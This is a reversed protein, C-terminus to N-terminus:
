QRHEIELEKLCTSAPAVGNSIFGIWEFSSVSGHAAPLAKWLKTNGGDVQVELMWEMPQRLETTISVNIPHHTQLSALRKGNVFLGRSSLSINPGVRYPTSDDRWEHIFETENDLIVSFGVRVKGSKMSVPLYMHPDFRNSVGAVGDHFFLCRGAITSKEILLAKGNNPPFRRFAHPENRTKADAFDWRRVDLARFVQQAPETQQQLKAGEIAKERDRILDQWASALGIPAGNAKLLSGSVSSASATTYASGDARWENLVTLGPQNAERHLAKRPVGIWGNGQMRINDSRRRDSWRFDNEKHFAFLNDEIVLNRGYHLHYGGSPSDVVVNSRIHMDSSGEDSYIGWAGPGYGEYGTVRRILNGSIISGASKGLTYIGGMDSLTGQGIDTLANNIIQNGHAPSDGYGWLWGVSIGSYTTYAIVNNEIRNNAAHGVWIGVSGPFVYGTNSIINGDLTNRQTLPDYLPLSSAGVKIGGAGMDDLRCGSVKSHQVDHRFWVGYGATHRINCDQLTVHRARDVEIAAGISVAAQTDIFGSSTNTIGTYEFTLGKIAVHSVSKFSRGEIKILTPLRPWFGYVAGSKSKAIDSKTPIYRIAPGDTIWEGPADLAARVNDIWYRQSRGFLLFPWKSAPELRIVDNPSLKALRHSSATWSHMVNVFARDKDADSLSEMWKANGSDALFAQKSSENGEVVAEKVFWFAGTNPQRALVARRGDVFFQGGGREILKSSVVPLAFRWDHESLQRARLAAAGSIIATTNADAEIITPSSATGSMEANIHLAETLEYRGAELVVRAPTRTPVKGLRRLEAVQNLAQQIGEGGSAPHVRIVVAHANSWLCFSILMGGILKALFQCTTM